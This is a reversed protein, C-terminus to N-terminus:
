PGETENHGNCSSLNLRLTWTLSAVYCLGSNGELKIKSRMKGIFESSFPLFGTLQNASLNMNYITPFTDFGRPIAGSLNNNDLAMYTLNKMATMSSPIGGRLGAQSLGLTKVGTLKNWFDPILGGLPNCSLHLDRLAPLA